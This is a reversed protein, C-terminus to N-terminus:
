RERVLQIVEEPSRVKERRILLHEFVHDSFMEIRKQIYDVCLVANWLHSTSTYSSSKNIPCYCHHWHICVKWSPSYAEFHGHCGIVCLARKQRSVAVVQRTRDMLFGINCNKNNRVLSLVVLDREHGQTSYLLIVYSMCYLFQTGYGFCDLM